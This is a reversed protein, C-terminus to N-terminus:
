RVAALALGAAAASTGALLSFAAYMGAGALADDEVLRVTEVAFTSFTTYAGCFGTGLLIRPTAPLAHHLAAGTILGFLLSGTVNVAFTGWPFSGGGRRVLAGDVLSRAMAGLAGSAALGGLVAPTM